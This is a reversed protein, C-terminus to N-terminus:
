PGLPWGVASDDDVASVKAQRNHTVRFDDDRRLADLQAATLNAAVAEILQLQHTVEGGLDHIRARVKSLDEGQVIYSSLTEGDPNSMKLELADQELVGVSFLILSTLGVTIWSSRALRKQTM